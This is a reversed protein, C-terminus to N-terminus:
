KCAGEEWSTVGARGAECSNGYTKSDCGCVPDYLAICALDPNINDPNICGVIEEDNCKAFIFLSIFVVSAIIRTINKM